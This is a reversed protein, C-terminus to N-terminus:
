IIKIINKINLHYVFLYLIYIQIYEKYKSIDYFLYIIVCICILKIIDNLIDIYQHPINIHITYIVDNLINKNHNPINDNKDRRM